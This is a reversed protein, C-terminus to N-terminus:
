MIRVSFCGIVVLRKKLSMQVRAIIVSPVLVIVVEVLINAAGVFAWM